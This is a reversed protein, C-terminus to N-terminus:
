IASFVAQMASLRFARHSFARWLQAMNEESHELERSLSWAFRMLTQADSCNEALMLQRLLLPLLMAFLAASWINRDFVARPFYKYIGYCLLQEWVEPLAPCIERWDRKELPFLAAHQLYGKWQPRLPELQDIVRAFCNRFHELGGSHAPVTHFTQAPELGESLAAALRGDRHAIAQQHVPACLSIISCCRMGFPISRNQAIRLALDRLKDVALMLEPSLEHLSPITDATVTHCLTFPKEAGLILRAAEPCSLSIGLERRLGIETSFRPYTACIKCLREAGLERQIRCLGDPQLLHCFGNNLGFCVDDDISIMSDRLQQGLQGPVTDYFAKSDRDIVVEWNACCTDPCDGALCHFSDFYDPKTINM